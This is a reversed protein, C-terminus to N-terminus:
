GGQGEKWHWTAAQPVSEEGRGNQSYGVRLLAPSRVYALGGCGRLLLLLQDEEKVRLIRLIGRFSDLAAHEARRSVVGPPCHSRQPALPLLMRSCKTM